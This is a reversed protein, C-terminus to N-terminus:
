PVPGVVGIKAEGTAVNAGGTNADRGLGVKTTKGGTGTIVEM